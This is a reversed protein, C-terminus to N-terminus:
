TENLTDFSQWTPASNSQSATCCYSPGIGIGCCSQSLRARSSALLMFVPGQSWALIYSLHEKTKSRPSESDVEAWPEITAWRGPELPSRRQGRVQNSGELGESNTKPACTMNFQYERGSHQIILAGRGLGLQLSAISVAIRM